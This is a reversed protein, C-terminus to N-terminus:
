LRVPDVDCVATLGCRAVKGALLSAAHGQGMLGLGVIGLRLPQM